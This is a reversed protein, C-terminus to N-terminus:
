RQVMAPQCRYQYSHKDHCLQDSGPADLAMWSASRASASAQDIRVTARAAQPRINAM